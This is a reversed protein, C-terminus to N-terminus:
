RCKHLSFYKQLYFEIILHNRKQTFKWIITFILYRHVFFITQQSHISIVYFKKTLRSKLDLNIRGFYTLLYTPVFLNVNRFKERMDTNSLSHLSLITSRVIFHPGAALAGTSFLLGRNLRHKFKRIIMGWDQNHILYITIM